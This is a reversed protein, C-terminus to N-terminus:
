FINFIGKAVYTHNKSAYLQILERARNARHPFDWFGVAKKNKNKEKYIITFYM